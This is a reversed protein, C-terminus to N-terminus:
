LLIDSHGIKIQCAVVECMLCAHSNEMIMETELRSTCSLIKFYVQFIGVGAHVDM